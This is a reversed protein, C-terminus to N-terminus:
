FALGLYFEWQNNYDIFYGKYQYFTPSSTSGVRYNITTKESIENALLARVGYTLCKSKIMSKFRIQIIPNLYYFKNAEYNINISDSFGGSSYPFTFTETKATSLLMGTGLLGLSISAQVNKTKLVKREISIGSQLGINISSSRIDNTTPKLLNSSQQYGVTYVRTNIGFIGNLNYKKYKKIPAEYNISASFINNDRFPGRAEYFIDYSYFSRSSINMTLCHNLSDISKADLQFFSFFITTTSIILKLKM